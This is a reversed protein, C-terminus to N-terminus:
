MGKTLVLEVLVVLSLSSPVSVETAVAYTLQDVAAKAASYLPLDSAGLKSAVSGINIIRGDRPMYPAASQMM